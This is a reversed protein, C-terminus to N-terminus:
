RARWGGNVVIASGTIYDSAASALFVMVGQLNEQAGWRGAPIRDAGAEAVGLAVDPGLGRGTGTALAAKGDLKFQDLIMKGSHFPHCQILFANQIGPM